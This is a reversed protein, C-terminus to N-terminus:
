SHRLEFEEHYLASFRNSSFLALNLTKNVLCTFYLPKKWATIIESCTGRMSIREVTRVMVIKATIAAM